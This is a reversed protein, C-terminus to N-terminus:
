RMDTFYAFDILSFMSVKGELNMMPPAAIKDRMNVWLYVKLSTSHDNERHNSAPAIIGCSKINCLVPDASFM